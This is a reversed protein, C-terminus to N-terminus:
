CCILNGTCKIINFSKSSMLQKFKKLSPWSYYYHKFYKKRLDRYLPCVLLFHFEDEICNMNCFECLRNRREIDDFRGKEVMLNHSSCRFKCFMNRAKPYLVDLYKEYCFEIKFLRYKDM